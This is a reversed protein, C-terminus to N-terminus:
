LKNKQKNLYKPINSIARKLFHMKHNNANENEYYRKFDQINEEGFLKCAREFGSKYDKAEIIEFSNYFWMSFKMNNKAM